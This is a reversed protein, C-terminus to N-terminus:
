GVARRTRAASRYTRVIAGAVVIAISFAFIHPLTWLVGYDGTEVVTLLAAHIALTVGVLGLTMTATLERGKAVVAVLVGILANVIFRVVLMSSTLWFIYAEPDNEYIGCRGLAADIAGSIAPDSLRSVFWRLLFGGAVVATITWPATRFGTGVLHAITTVTQRWYWRRACVTGKESAVYSFEELLDGPISEVDGAPALLTVLWAAFRPPQASDRPSSM